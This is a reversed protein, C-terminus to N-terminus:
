NFRYDISNKAISLMIEYMEDITRAEERFFMSVPEFPLFEKELFVENLPFFENMTIIRDLITSWKEFDCWNWFCVFPLYGYSKLMAKIGILNKWLREIANGKAQKSLWEEKRKNNTWQRKVEAILVIRIEGHKNKAFLFWWDPTIFSTDENFTFKDAYQPFQIKLLSVINKLYMKKIWTFEIHPYLKCLSELVLDKAVIIDGDMKVSHSNKIIHQNTNIRLFDSSAM